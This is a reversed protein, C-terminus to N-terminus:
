QSPANKRQFAARLQDPTMTQVEEATPDRNEKIWAPEVNEDPLPLTTVRQGQDIADQMSAPVIGRVFEAGHEADTVLLMFLESYADTQLFAEWLEPSKIFRKGDDSRIGYALRLIDKFATIIKAGDEEKIIKQLYDSLGNKHSLELEAMEAKSLSFYFDDVITNGDLDQYQITKKLM